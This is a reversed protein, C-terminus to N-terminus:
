LASLRGIGERVTQLLLNVAPRGPMDGFPLKGIREYVESDGALAGAFAEGHWVSWSLNAGLVFHVRPAIEGIDPADSFRKIALWGGWHFPFASDFRGPFVGRLTKALQRRSLQDDTSGMLAGGFLLSNNQTMRFSYGRGGVFESVAMGSKVPSWAPDLPGTAISAAYLPVHRRTLAPCLDGLYANTALLLHEARVKHGTTTTVVVGDASSDFSVVRTREHLRAGAAAAADALGLTLKLPNVTPMDRLFGGVYRDTDIIARAGAADLEQVPATDGFETRLGNLADRIIGMAPEGAAPILVGRQLECDIGHRDIAQVVLEALGRAEDFVAQAHPGYARKMAAASFERLPMLFGMNQGSAGYSITEAELLVVEVGRRALSLAASAGAVGGGIICVKAQTDRSLPLYGSPPTTLAHLYLSNRSHSTLSKAM